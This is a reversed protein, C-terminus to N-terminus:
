SLEKTIKISAFQPDQSVSRETILRDNAFSFDILMHSEEKSEAEIHLTLESGYNQIRLKAM